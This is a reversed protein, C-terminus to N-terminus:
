LLIKYNLAEEFVFEFTWTSGYLKTRKTLSKILRKTITEKAASEEATYTRSQYITDVAEDLSQFTQKNNSITVAVPIKSLKLQKLPVAFIGNLNLRLMIENETLSDRVKRNKYENRLFYNPIIKVTRDSKNVLGYFM